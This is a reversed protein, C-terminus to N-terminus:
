EFGNGFMIGTPLSYISVVNLNPKGAIFRKREPDYGFNYESLMSRTLGIISNDTGIRGALGAANSAFTIAGTVQGPGSWGYSLIIYQGDSLEKMGGLGVNDHQQTGILSREVSIEGAVGAIGDGWTVAGEQTDFDGNSWFPANVVFNGDELALIDSFGLQDTARTGVLSNGISINGVCGTAGVCSTVAGANVVDGNDWLTSRVVYNGNRLPVVGNIIPAPQVFVGGVRDNANSGVLSNSPSIVGSYGQSGSVWTVAGVDEIEGDDWESSVVVFNGNDLATVGSKLEFEDSLTGVRDDPSSGILSNTSSVAGALGLTGDVWTVAGVNETSGNDWSPSVVVYNGNSLAIGTFGVLDYLSTGILSNTATVTGLLPAVGNAWTAAGVDVDADSDWRPSLIVFRGSNLTIIGGDGLRDELHTGVLSNSANVEGVAGVMSNAWTVAGADTASGNAWGSSAVVYNGNDLAFVGNRRPLFFWEALAGALDGPTGGVLSNAPSVHGSSGSSGNGWTVAGVDEAEGDDWNPSSVVYNGNTLPIVVGVYDGSTSGVLSNTPSIAGSGGTSGNAWTVAGKFSNWYPTSVVYHGNTLLTIEDDGVRDERFAGVLSNSSSVVGTAGVEGSAWTVAGAESISGNHWHPSRILYHGNGLVFIGGSGVRDGPQSGALTSILAGDPTLLHVAGRSVSYASDVVVINGNPLVSVAEGFAMSEPPGAIDIQSAFSPLALVIFFLGTCVTLVSSLSLLGVRPGQNM